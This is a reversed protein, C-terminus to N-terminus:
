RNKKISSPLAQKDLDIKGGLRITEGNITNKNGPPLMKQNFPNENRLISKWLRQAEQKDITSQSRKGLNIPTNISKLPAGTKPQPLM